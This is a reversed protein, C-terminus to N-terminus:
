KKFKLLTGLSLFFPLKFPLNVEKEHTQKVLRYIKRPTFSNVHDPAKIPKNGLLFRGVTWLPENPVTIILYGGKKVIRMLEKMAKKYEYLHELVESCIVFDFTESPYEMAIIDMKIFTGYPCREKAKKLAITTIDIGHYDFDEYKEHIKQILHGEGCGADLVKPRHNIADKSVGISELVRKLRNTHVFRVIINKSNYLNDMHDEPMYIHSNRSKRKGRNAM